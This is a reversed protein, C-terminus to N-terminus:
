KGINGIIEQQASKRKASICCSNGVPTPVTRKLYCQGISTASSPRVFTFAQCNGDASCVARCAEPTVTPRQAYDSGPRDSNYELRFPENQAAMIQTTLELAQQRQSVVSQLDIMALEAESSAQTVANGPAGAGVRMNSSVTSQSGLPRQGTIGDGFRIQGNAQDLQYALHYHHRQQVIDRSQVGSLSGAADLATGDPLLLVINRMDENLALILPFPTSVELDHTGTAAAVILPSGGNDPILGLQKDATQEVLYANPPALVPAGDPATFHVVRDLEITHAPATISHTDAVGLYSETQRHTGPTACGGLSLAIVLWFAIVQRPMGLGMAHRSPVKLM